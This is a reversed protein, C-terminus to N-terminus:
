NFFSAVWQSFFYHLWYGPSSIKFRKTALMGIKHFCHSTSIWRFGHSPNVSQIPDWLISRLGLLKVWITWFVGAGFNCKQPVCKVLCSELGTTMHDSHAWQFHYVAHGSQCPNNSIQCLCTRSVMTWRKTHHPVHLAILTGSICYIVSYSIRSMAIITKTVLCYNKAWMFIASFLCKKFGGLLFFHWTTRQNCKRKTWLSRMSGCTWTEPFCTHGLCNTTAMTAMTM